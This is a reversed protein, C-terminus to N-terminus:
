ESKRYALFHIRMPHSLSSMQRTLTMDHGCLSCLDTKLEEVLFVIKISVIVLIDLFLVDLKSVVCM